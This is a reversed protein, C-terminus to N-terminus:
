PHPHDGPGDTEKPPRADPRRQMDRQIDYARRILHYLGGVGGLVCGAILAKPASGLARDILWGLLVFGVIGSGFEFGLSAYRLQM